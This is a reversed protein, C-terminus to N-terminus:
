QGVFADLKRQNYVDGEVLKEWVGESTVKILTPLNTVSFPAQRWPNDSKRWEAPQGAYIVKVEDGGSAFKSNVFPEASRCDGCWSRGNTLSAYVVLFSPKSPTATSTLWSAVAAPSEASVKLPM